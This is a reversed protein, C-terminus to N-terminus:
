ATTNAADPPAPSASHLEIRTLSTAANAPDDWERRGMPAGNNALRWAAMSRQLIQPTFTFIFIGNVGHLIKSIKLKHTAHDKAVHPGRACYSGMM